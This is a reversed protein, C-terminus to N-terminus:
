LNTDLSVILNKPKSGSLELTITACKPFPEEMLATTFPLHTSVEIPRVGNSPRTIPVREPSKSGATRSKIQLFSFMSTVSITFIRFLFDPKSPSEM